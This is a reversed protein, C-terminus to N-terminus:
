VEIEVGRNRGKTIYVSCEFGRERFYSEIDRSLVKANTDTVAYVAPGTSSMGVCDGLSLCGKILDGYQSVEAKKFGLEQIRGIARGFEDLDAEVVAPLMKMLILHCLERVEELPVPCCKQFLNVEEEGFFGKLNPVALIVDWEPFDLRAIVPAPKAKSASSPLFSKKEKMSHGGDVVLGGHDFVAVGIGSTGGRGMIEAIQRTTLGLSYIESYARGVALSIQTGSGLGVHSEYDSLVEIELGKGCFEAMKSASLRFREINTSVGKIIVDESEKATIQIYPENLALGVGGDIRGLSGNLDILTIHIRSPTRLRLSM